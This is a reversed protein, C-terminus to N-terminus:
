KEPYVAEVWPVHAPNGRRLRWRTLRLLLHEAALAMLAALMIGLPLFTSAQGICLTMLLSLVAMVGAIGHRWLPSWRQRRGCRRCVGPVHLGSLWQRANVDDQLRYLRKQAKERAIEGSLQVEDGFNDTFQNVRVRDFASVAGRERNARGCHICRWKCCYPAKVRLFQNRM